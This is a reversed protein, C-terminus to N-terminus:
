PNLVPANPSASPLEHVEIGATSPEIKSMAVAAEMAMKATTTPSILKATSAMAHQLTKGCTIPWHVSGNCSELLKPLVRSWLQQVFMLPTTDCGLGDPYRVSGFDPTGITDTVYVFIENIDPLADGAKELRAKVLSWISLQDDVLPGNLQDGYFYKSGNATTAVLFPPLVGLQHAQERLDAQCSFGAVAGLATFLADVKYRNTERLFDVVVKLVTVAAAEDGVTVDNFFKDAFAKQLAEAKRQENSDVTQLREESM